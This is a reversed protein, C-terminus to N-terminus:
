LGGGGWSNQWSWSASSDGSIGMVDRVTEPQSEKAEIGFHNMIKAVADLFKAHAKETNVKRGDIGDEIVDFIQWAAYTVIAQEGLRFPLFTILSGDDNESAFIDPQRIYSVLLTTDAVPIGAVHVKSGKLCGALVSTGRVARSIHVFDVMRYSIACDIDDTQNYLRLIRPGFFDEPMSVFKDGASLSLEADSVMLDPPNTMITVEALGDNLKEVIFSPGFSGDKVLDQVRGILTTASQM